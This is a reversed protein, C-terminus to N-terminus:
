RSVRELGVKAREIGAQACTRIVAMYREFGAQGVVFPHPAGPKRASLLYMKAIQAGVYPHNEIEVDVGAKRTLDLFHDVSTLYRERDALPVPASIMTGGWLGAMHPAGHDAVPIVLALSGPTHGPTVAVTLSTKGLTLAQGDTLVLDRRPKSEPPGAQRDLFDWDAASMAVRAGKDQFYRAGGYHDSHAHTILVYKITAPDLGLRRMEPAVKAEGMGPFLSDVLILGDSTRVVWMGAERLGIYFLDDFVKVPPVDQDPGQMHAGGFFSSVIEGRQCLLNATWAYDQGAIEKAKVAYPQGPDAPQASAAGGLLVAAAALALVGRHAAKTM